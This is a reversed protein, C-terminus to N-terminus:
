AFKRFKNKCRLQMLLSVPIIIPQSNANRWDNILCRQIYGLGDDNQYISQFKGSEDWYEILKVKFNNEVLIDSIMQYNFLHKHDESGPGTGGPKVNEIYSHDPHFGDPIVIRFNGGPILFKHINKLTINLDELEIHELVHEALIKNIKKNGLVRYFDNEELLDLSDIDSPIWQPYNTTAAGVILNIEKALYVKTKLALKKFITKIKRYINKIKDM